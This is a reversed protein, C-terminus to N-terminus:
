CLGARATCPLFRYPGGQVSPSFSRVQSLQTAGPLSYETSTNSRSRRLRVSLRRLSSRPAPSRSIVSQSVTVSQTPYWLVRRAERHKSNRPRIHLEAGLETYNSQISVTWVQVRNTAGVEAAM